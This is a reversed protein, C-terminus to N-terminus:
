NKKLFNSWVKLLLIASESRGYSLSGEARKLASHRFVHNKIEIFSQESIISKLSRRDCMPMM